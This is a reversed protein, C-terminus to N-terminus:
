CQWPFRLKEVGHARVVTATVQALMRVKRREVGRERPPKVAASFVRRGRLEGFRIADEDETSHKLGSLRRRM